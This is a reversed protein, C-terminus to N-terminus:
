GRRKEAIVLSTRIASLFAQESFPKQLFEVAGAGLAHARAQGDGQASIFIIPVRSNSAVLQSQLELGSMGPLRVDLILCASNQSRGINLYDEASAFNEVSLGVSNILRKIAKRLSEDDDVISIVVDETKMGETNHILV